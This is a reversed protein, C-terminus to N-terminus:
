AVRERKQARLVADDRNSSLIFGPESSIGLSHLTPLFVAPYGVAYLKGGKKRVDKHLEILARNVEAGVVDTQLEVVVSPNDWKKSVEEYAQKLERPLNQGEVRLLEEDCNLTIVPKKEDVRLMRTASQQDDPM